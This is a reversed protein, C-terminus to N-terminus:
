YPGPSTAAGPSGPAGPPPGDGVQQLPVTLSLWLPYQEAHCRYTLNVRGALRLHAPHLLEPKIDPGHMVLLAPVHLMAMPVRDMAHLGGVLLYRDKFLQTLAPIMRRFAMPPYPQPGAPDLDGRLHLLGLPRGAPAHARVLATIQDMVPELTCAADWRQLRLRELRAAGPMHMEYRFPNYASSAPRAAMTDPLWPIPYYHAVVLVLAFAAAASALAPVRWRPPPIASLWWATLLCLVPYVPQAYREMKTALVTLLLYSGWLFSLLLWRGSLRALRGRPDHLLLLGPAALILLPWPYSVLAFKINTLLWEATWPDSASGPLQRELFHIRAEMAVRQWDPRYILLVLILSVAAGALTRLLVLARPRGAGADRLGVAVAAVSPLLLYIAFNPKIYCGLASVVAFALTPLWRAFGNTRLLLLLALLVLALMPYDLSFYWTSAVLGPNLVTLLAAWLGVRLGAMAHGLGVVAGLLILTFLLNTLQTTWLAGAGLPASWLAALRYLGPPWQIALEDPRTDPFALLYPDQQQAESLAWRKAYIDLMYLHDAMDAFEMVAATQVGRLTLMRPVILAAAIAAILLILRVRPSLGRGPTESDASEAM